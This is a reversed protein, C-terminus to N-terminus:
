DHRTRGITVAVTEFIADIPAHPKEITVELRDIRPFRAMIADAVAGAAAEILHFHRSSFAERAVEVMEAYNLTNELRDSRQAAALPLEATLHLIFPQGLVREEPMVGHTGRLALGRVTIRDSM